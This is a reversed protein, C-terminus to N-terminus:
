GRGIGAQRLLRSIAIGELQAPWGLWGDGEHTTPLNTSATEAPLSKHGGTVAESRQCLTTKFSHSHAIMRTQQAQITAAAVASTLVM